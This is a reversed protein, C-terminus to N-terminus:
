WGSGWIVFYKKYNSRSSLMPTEPKDYEPKFM